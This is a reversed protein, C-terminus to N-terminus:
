FPHLIACLSALHQELRNKEDPPPQGGMVGRQLLSHLPIFYQVQYMMGFLPISSKLANTLYISMFLIWRGRDIGFIGIIPLWFSRPLCHKTVSWFNETSLTEYCFLFFLFLVRDLTWLYFVIRFFIRLVGGRHTNANKRPAGSRVGYLLCSNGRRSGNPFLWSVITTCYSRSWQRPWAEDVEDTTVRSSSLRFSWPIDIKRSFQL